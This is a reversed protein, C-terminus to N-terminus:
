FACFRCKILLTTALFSDATKETKSWEKDFENGYTKNEILILNEFGKNLVLIDGYKTDGHGVKMAPEIIIHRSEYGKSLLADVCLLCVFNENDSFNCTRKHHIIFGTSPKEKSPYEGEKFNEDLPFYDIKENKFDVKLSTEQQTSTNKFNKVLIHPQSQSAPKFGLIQLLDKLNEKTIM